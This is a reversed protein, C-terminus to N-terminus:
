LVTAIQSGLISSLTELLYMSVAPHRFVYRIYNIINIMFILASMLRNGYDHGCAVLRIQQQSPVRCM